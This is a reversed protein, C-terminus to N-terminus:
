AAVCSSFFSCGFSGIDQKEEDVILAMIGQSDCAVADGPRGGNVAQGALPDTKFIRKYRRRNAGGTPRGDQRAEGLTGVSERETRRGDAFVVDLGAAGSNQAACSVASGVNALQANRHLGVRLLPQEVKEAFAVPRVQVPLRVPGDSMNVLDIHFVGDLKEVGAGCLM